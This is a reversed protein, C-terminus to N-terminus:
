EVPDERQLASTLHCISQLHQVAMFVPLASAGILEPVGALEQDKTGYAIQQADLKVEYKRMSKGNRDSEIM